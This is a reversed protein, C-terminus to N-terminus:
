AHDDESKRSTFTTEVRVSVAFVRECAHCTVEAENGDVADPNYERDEVWSTIDGCYPCIIHDEASQEEAGPVFRPKNAEKMREYWADFTEGPQRTPIIM